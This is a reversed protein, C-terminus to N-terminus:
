FMTAMNAVELDNCEAVRKWCPKWTDYTNQKWGLTWEHKQPKVTRFRVFFVTWGFSLYIMMLFSSTMKYICIAKILVVKGGQWCGSQKKEMHHLHPIPRSPSLPSPKRIKAPAQLTFCCPSTSFVLFRIRQHNWINTLAMSSIIIGMPKFKTWESTNTCIETGEVKSCFHWRVLCQGRAFPTSLIFVACFFRHNSRTPSRVKGTTFHARQNLGPGSMDTDDLERPIGTPPRRRPAPHHSPTGIVQRFGGYDRHAYRHTVCLIHIIYIYM